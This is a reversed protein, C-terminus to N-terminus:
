DTVTKVWLMGIGYASSTVPLGSSNVTWVRVSDASTSRREAYEIERRSGLFWGGPAAQKRVRNLPSTEFEKESYGYSSGYHANYYSSHHTQADNQYSGSSTGYNQAYPLYERAQRGWADYIVPTVIDWGSVSGQKRVNQSPRGLGDFYNFDKYSQSATGTKVTNENTTGARLTYKKIYNPKSIIAQVPVKASICGSATHRYALNYSTTVSISP